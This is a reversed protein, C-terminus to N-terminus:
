LYGMGYPNVYTNLWQLLGSQTLPIDFTEVDFCDFGEAELTRKGNEADAYSAFWCRGQLEVEKPQVQYFIM